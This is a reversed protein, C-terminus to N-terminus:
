NCHRKNHLAGVQLSCGDGGVSCAGGCPDSEASPCNLAIAQGASIDVNGGAFKAWVADLICPALLGLVVFAFMFVRRM